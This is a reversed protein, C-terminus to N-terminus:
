GFTSGLSTSIEHHSVRVDVEHHFMEIGEGSGPANEVPRVM